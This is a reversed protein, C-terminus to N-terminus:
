EEDGDEPYFNTYINLVGLGDDVKIELVEADLLKSNLFDKANESNNYLDNKIGFDFWQTRGDYYIRVIRSDTLNFTENDYIAFDYLDLLQSLVISSTRNYEIDSRKEVREGLAEITQGIRYLNVRRCLEEPDKTEFDECNLGEEPDCLPCRGCDGVHDECIKNKTKIFEIIDNNM